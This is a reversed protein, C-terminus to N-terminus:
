GHKSASTSHLYTDIVGLLRNIDLPKTVYAVAGADRIREITPSTVDASLVVVPIESTRPNSKLQRLVSEGDLDPLQVDLLILSPLCISALELGEQGSSANVLELEPRQHLIMEVLQSNTPNDEIQLIVGGGTWPKVGQYSGPRVSPGISLVPSAPLEIWFLCGCELHCEAGIQGNMAEVLSRALALGLGTGETTSREAGLREFPRFLLPLQSENLGPGEDQVEVRWGVSGMRCRIWVRGNERNYKVANSLLNLLAQAFRRSDALVWASGTFPEIEIEVKRSLALSGIMDVAEQIAPALELPALEMALNGSEVRSLDLVDNILRLLHRGGSLIQQVSEREEERLPAMEMLQAFGLIANLPTRLEHSMRSLFGSKAVNAAEAAEKARALEEAHKKIESINRGICFVMDQDPMRLVVWSTWIVTDANPRMRCEFSLPPSHNLLQTQAEKVRPLDEVDVLSFLDLGAVDQPHLGLVQTFAPNASHCRGDLGCTLIFDPSMLFLQDRDSEAHKRVIGLAIADAVSSLASLTVGALPTRSFLGLVGVLRGEVMLPHGAFGVIGERLAWGRDSIRADNRVDNTLIPTRTAAIKGIKYAGVEIRSHPGDLHTYMGGSAQLELTKEDPALLWVRAFAAGLHKVIAEVCKQLMEKLGANSTLAVGVEASLSSIMVRERLEQEAKKKDTIDREIAIFNTLKGQDDHIPQIHIDLWYPRGRKHYNLIEVHVAEGRHICASMRQVTAPDTGPGQLVHGPKKGQVEELSYGSVRAFADNAWEIYGDADTIVVLNDTRSAVLALRQAEAERARLTELAQMEVTRDTLTLVVGTVQGSTSIPIKSISVWRTKGSPTTIREVRDLLPQGTRLVELTEEHWNPITQEEMPAPSGTWYSSPPAVSNGDQGALRNQAVPQGSSDLLWIQTPIAELILQPDWRAVPKELWILRLTLWLGGVLVVGVALVPWLLILAAIATFFALCLLLRLPLSLKHPFQKVIASIKM